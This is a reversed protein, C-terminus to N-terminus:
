NKKCQNLKYKLYFLTLEKFMIFRGRIKIYLSRNSRNFKTSINTLAMDHRRYLLLQEKCFYVNGIIEAVLGIWLDHGIERTKPFPLSYDLIKRNFAMCTGFYTSRLMNKVVGLGSGYYEFFSPNIQNLFEDVVIADTIVLDYDKLYHLCCGYKNPLWVDDQDSLFIFEGKAHKLSNEFNKIPNRYNANLIKIRKDGVAKIKEITLDTSNDDSIIVEDGEGIQSLISNLQEQIFEEGNYTAICVSVM